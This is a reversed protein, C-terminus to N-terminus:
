KEDNKLTELFALDEESLYAEDLLEPRREWTRRLSQQRRWTEIRAHVGGRLV